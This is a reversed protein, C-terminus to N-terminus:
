PRAEGLKSIAMAAFLRATGCPAAVSLVKGGALPVFLSPQGYVGCYGTRGSVDVQQLRHIHPELAAFGVGEIAVTVFTKAGAPQYICTPGLPAQQPTAVPRGLIRQAAARSVLECPDSRGAAPNRGADANGPNDDNIESGGTGAVPRHTVVGRTIADRHAKAYGVAAAERAARPGSSASAARIPSVSASQPASSSGCAAVSLAVAVTLLAASVMRVSMM